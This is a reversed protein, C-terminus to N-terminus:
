PLTRARGRILLHIRNESDRDDGNAHPEQNQAAASEEKAGIVTWLTAAPPTGNKKLCGPSSL